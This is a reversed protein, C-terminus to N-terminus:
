RARRDTVGSRREKDCVVGALKEVFVRLAGLDGGNWLIEDGPKVTVGAESRHGSYENVELYRGTIHIITGGLERIMEAEDNFRVDDIVINKDTSMIKKKMLKLWIGPFHARLCETGLIQLAQRPSIEWDPDVANKGEMTYLQDQSFGFLIRAADKLPKAFSELEYGRLLMAATTKGSGMPGALGILM